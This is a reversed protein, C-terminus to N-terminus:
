VFDFRRTFICNKIRFILQRVRHLWFNEVKMLGNTKLKKLAQSYANDATMKINKTSMFNTKIMRTVTIGAIKMMEIM